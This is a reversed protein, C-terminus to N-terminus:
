RRRRCSGCGTSGSSTSRRRTSRSSTDRRARSWCRAPLVKRLQSVYIQVMKAAPEPVAEGWLDDVLRDVAVTRNPTVLLRALLARQKLGGLELARRRRARGDPRAPPVGHRRAVSGAERRGAIGPRPSPRGATRCGSQPVLRDLWGPMWWARAGLLRLVVPQLLLRILAADLLVAVALIVGMEKLAIPGALAFTMFVVVMVAAAANIVRGTRAFGEVM